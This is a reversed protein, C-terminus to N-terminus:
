KTLTRALEQIREFSLHTLEQIKDVTMGSRLMNIAVSELSRCSRRGYEM